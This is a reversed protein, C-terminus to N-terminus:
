GSIVAPSLRSGARGRYHPCLALHRASLTPALPAARRPFRPPPSGRSSDLTAPLVDVSEEGGGAAVAIGYNICHCEEIELLKRSIPGLMRRNM